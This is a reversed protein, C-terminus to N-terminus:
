VIEIFLRRFIKKRGEIKGEYDLFSFCTGEPNSHADLTFRSRRGKPGKVRAVGKPLLEVLSELILLNM